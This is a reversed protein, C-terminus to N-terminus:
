SMTRGGTFNFDIIYFASMFYISYNEALLNCCGRTRQMDITHSLAGKAAVSTDVIQPNKGSFFKVSKRSSIKVSTKNFYIRM